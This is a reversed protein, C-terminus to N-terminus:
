DEVPEEPHAEIDETLWTQWRAENRRTQRFEPGDWDKDEFDRHFLGLSEMRALTPWLAREHWDVLAFSPPAAKRRYAALHAVMLSTLLEVAVPHRYWDAHLAPIGQRSKSLNRLYRDELWAVWSFLRRWLEERAKGKLEAWAWPGDPKAKIDDLLDAFDDQLTQLTDAHKEFMELLVEFPDAAAAPAEDAPPEPPWGLDDPPMQDEFPYPEEATM